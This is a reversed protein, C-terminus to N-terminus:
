VGFLGAIAKEDIQSGIVCLRGIVDSTGCRIDMEGPVYDFHIWTGNEDAVIGKARLVAGLEGSDLEELIQRLQEQTYKKTTEAGWSSFVDEAHHHHHDHGCGCSCHEDHDHHHHEHDHGCTCHEDHDHHHHEHDHGCTCHEDHDHHHHEHDHGCTCHEDHD